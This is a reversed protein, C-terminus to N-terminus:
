DDNEGGVEEYNKTRIPKKAWEEGTPELGVFPRIEDVVALSSSILKDISQATDFIDRHKINNTCCVIKSGECIEKSTFKKSTLETSILKAIPLICKTMTNDFADKTGAVDGTFLAPDVSYILATKSIYDNFLSKYDTIESVNRNTNQSQPTYKYGQFLPLVANRSKFYTKFDKNLLKQIDAEYTPTGRAAQAIEVIGKQGGENLYKESTSQLLQGYQSSLEFILISAKENQVKFYLVDSMSYEKNLTLDEKSIQSFKWENIAYKEINFSDACIQQEGVPVVLAHQNILAKKIVEQWFETANQNINPRYNWAYWEAGKIEKGRDFVKFDCKSIIKAIFETIVVVSFMQLAISNEIEDYDTDKQESIDIRTKKGSLIEKIFSRLGM